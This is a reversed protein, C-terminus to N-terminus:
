LQKFEEPTICYHELLVELQKHNFCHTSSQAHKGYLKFRLSPTNRIEKRLSQMAAEPNISDPYLKLALEQKLITRRIIM